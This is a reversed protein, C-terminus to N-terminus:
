CLSDFCSSTAPLEIEVTTRRTGPYYSKVEEDFVWFKAFPRLLDLCAPVLEFRLHGKWGKNGCGGLRVTFSSERGGAEEM